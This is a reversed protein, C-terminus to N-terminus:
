LATRLLVFTKKGKRIKADISQESVTNGSADLFRLNVAQTGEPLTLRTMIIKDPLSRWSRKDATETATAAATLAKKMLWGAAANGTKEEFAASAKKAILYKIIGRAIAKVRIRTLRDDLTKVAISGIDEVVEGRASQYGSTAEIAAIRYPVPIYKPFAIRVQEDAAVSRAMASAQEVQSADDGKTQVSRVYGWGTGFDVEIFHDIKEPSFGNLNLLVLEGTNLAAVKPQAKWNASIDRVEDDFGLKKATRIADAVLDAPTTTNFEKVYSKYADLAQRYSIFADNVQGQNEYLMGMIYRAFADDHYRSKYGGDTELKKFFQDMQRAEVLADNEKGEAAYNVAAFVNILAREFDEGYYPRSNDSILFTAAEKTVSKTFHEEAIKKAKEYAQNSEDNNGAFQLVMGRDLYYLLANKEGYMDMKSKEVLSAADAYKGSSVLGNLNQYYATKQACGALLFASLLIGFVVRLKSFM